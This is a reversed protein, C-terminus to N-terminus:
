KGDGAHFTFGPLVKSYALFEEKFIQSTPPDITIENSKFITSM